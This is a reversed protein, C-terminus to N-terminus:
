FRSTIAEPTPDIVPTLRRYLPMELRVSVRRTSPLPSPEAASNAHTAVRAPFDREQGRGERRDEKLSLIRLVVARPNDRITDRSLRSLIRTQVRM